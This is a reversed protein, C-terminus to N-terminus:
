DLVGQLIAYVLGTGVAILVVDTGLQRWEYGPYDPLQRVIGPPLPRCRAGGSWACVQPCTAALASRAACHASATGRRAWTRHGARRQGETPAVRPANIM